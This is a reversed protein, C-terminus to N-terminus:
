VDAASQAFKLEEYSEELASSIETIFSFEFKDRSDETREGEFRPKLNAKKLIALKGCCM